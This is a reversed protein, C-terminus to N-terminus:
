LPVEPFTARLLLVLAAAFAGAVLDDLMVGLAGHRRDAWGVPGPKVIDFIRFLLFALLVGNFGAGAPLAALVLLQGAGEDVVVWSPDAATDEGLIRWTAWFGAAALVAAMGLCVAPGLLVAPLVLASGWTGPAPRLLGVGGMTAVFRAKTMPRWSPPLSPTLESV